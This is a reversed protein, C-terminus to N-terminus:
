DTAGTRVYALAKTLATPFDMEDLDCFLFSGGDDDRHGVVSLYGDGIQIHVGRYEGLLQIEYDTESTWGTIPGEEIGRARLEKRVKPAIGSWRLRAINKATISM